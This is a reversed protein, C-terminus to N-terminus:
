VDRGWRDGAFRSLALELAPPMVETSGLEWVRVWGRADTLHRPTVLGTVPRMVLCYSVNVSPAGDEANRSSRIRRVRVETVQDWRLRLRRGGNLQVGESDVRLRTSVVRLALGGLVLVSLLVLALPWWRLLLLLSQHLDARFGPGSTMPSVVLLFVATLASLDFTLARLARVTSVSSRLVVAPPAESSDATGDTTVGALRDRLAAHRFQYVTGVRRFVGLRRGEELFGLVDLPLRSRGALILRTAYWRSWRSLAMLVAASCSWAIALGGVILLPDGCLWHFFALSTGAVAPAVVMSEILAIRREGRLLQAPRAALDVESSRTLLVGSLLPLVFVCLYAPTSGPLSVSVTVTALAAATLILPGSSGPASRRPRDDFGTFLHRTVVRGFATTIIAASAVAGLAQGVGAIGLGARPPSAGLFAALGAFAYSTSTGCVAAAVIVVVGWVGPETLLSRLQWWAITHTRRRHLETALYSCYM